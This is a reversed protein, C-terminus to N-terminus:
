FSLILDVLKLEFFTFLSYNTTIYNNLIKKITIIYENYLKKYKLDYHNISLMSWDWPKNPYKKVIEWTTNSNVSLGYWNWPVSLSCWNWPKDIHKEIIEWTINSNKSLGYWNWNKNLNNKKNEPSPRCHRCYDKLAKIVCKTM